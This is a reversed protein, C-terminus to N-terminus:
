QIITKQQPTALTLLSVKKAGENKLIRACANATAGTTLVDDVLLISADKIRRVNPVRFASKMNNKREERNLKTQTSTDKQRKVLKPSFKAGLEQALFKGMKDVQNYGRERFKRSHLPIPLIMDIPNNKIIDKLSDLGLQSLRVGLRERQSYKLRHILSQINKDFDFFSWSNDLFIEDPTSLTMNIDPRLPLMSACSLCFDTEDYPLKGDCLLCFDPFILDLFANTMRQVLFHM